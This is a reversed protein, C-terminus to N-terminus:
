EAAVPHVDERVVPRNSSLATLVFSTAQAIHEARRTADLLNVAHREAWSLVGRELGGMQAAYGSNVVALIEAALQQTIDLKYRRKIFEVSSDLEDFTLDTQFQDGNPLTVFIVPHRDGRGVIDSAIRINPKTTM